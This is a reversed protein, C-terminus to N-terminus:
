GCLKRKEWYRNTSSVKKDLLCDEERNEEFEIANVDFLADGFNDSEVFTDAM